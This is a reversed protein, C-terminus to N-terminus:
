SGYSGGEASTLFSVIGNQDIYPVGYSAGEVAGEAEDDYHYSKYGHCTLADVYLCEKYQIVGDRDGEFSVNSIYSCSNFEVSDGYDDNNIDSVRVNTINRCNSFITDEGMYHRTQVDTIFDCSVAKWIDSHAIRGCGYYVGAGRCFEVSGFGDVYQEYGAEENKGMEFHANMLRCETHGYLDVDLIHGNFNISKITDPISFSEPYSKDGTLMIDCNVLVNGSMKNLNAQTFQSPATIEFDYETIGGITNANLGSSVFANKSADWMPISKNYWTGSRAALPVAENPNPYFTGNVYNGFEFEGDPKVRGQGIYVAEGSNGNPLYLIGYCSGSPTLIALGSSSFSAGSSNTVILNDQVALTEHSHTVTTGKVNLYGEVDLNGDVGLNGTISGSAAKVNGTAELSAGTISGDATISGSAATINGKSASKILLGYAEITEGSVKGEAAIDSMSHIGNDNDISNTNLAPIYAYGNESKTVVSAGGVTLTGGVTVNGDADKQVYEDALTKDAEPNGLYAQLLSVISHINDLIDQVSAAEETTPDLAKIAKALEGNVITNFFDALSKGDEWAIHSLAQDPDCLINRLANYKDAVEQPFRDFYWKLKAADLGGVGYTSPQNPRVSLAQVGSTKAFEAPIKDLKEIAM